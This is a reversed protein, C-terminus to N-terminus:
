VLRELWAQLDRTADDATLAAGDSEAAEFAAGGLAARSRKMLPAIFAEDVSERRADSDRMRALAAGHLRAAQRHDDCITALGAGVEFLHQHMGRLENAATLALAEVILTRATAATGSGVLLRAFNCAVVATTGPNGAERCVVMGEEYYAQAAAVHGRGRELEARHNLNRAMLLRDGTTRAIHQIEDHRTALLGPDEGAKPDATLMRLAGAVQALDGVRRAFALGEEARKASEEYRGMYYLTTALGVLLHGRPAAQVDAGARELAAVALSRGRELQDASIWYHWSSAALRLGLEGGGPGHASWAHAALLNDQELRLRANVEGQRASRYHPETEEALAVCHRLHRTRAESGEGSEDLRDHAYQRVTELMRYRPRAQGERGVELLSKDNLATLLALVEYDDAAGAVETAAALTWGGVFVSLHRFLRQEDASLHEYSWLMVAQLTQHRPLARGGGTLLRFRDDLRDRIDQVSLLAVRAAALEVALVIGDLRRCIEAVM